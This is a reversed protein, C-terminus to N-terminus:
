RLIIRLRTGADAPIDQEWLHNGTKLDVSGVGLVAHKM